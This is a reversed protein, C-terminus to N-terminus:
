GQFGYPTAPNRIMSLEQAAANLGNTGVQMKAISRVSDSPHGVCEYLPEAHPLMSAGDQHQWVTVRLDRHLAVLKEPSSCSLLLCELPATSTPAMPLSSLVRCTHMDFLLMMRPLVMCLVGNAHPAFQASRIAADTDTAQLVNYKASYFKDGSPDVERLVRVWPLGLGTM